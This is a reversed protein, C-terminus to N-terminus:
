EEEELMQIIVVNCFVICPISCKCNRLNAMEDDTYSRNALRKM